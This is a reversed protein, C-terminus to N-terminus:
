MSVNRKVYWKLTAVSSVVVVLPWDCVSQESWGLVTQIMDAQVARIHLSVSVHDSVKLTEVCVVCLPKSRKWKISLTEHVLGVSPRIAHEQLKWKWTWHKSTSIQLSIRFTLYYGGKNKYKHQGATTYSASGGACCYGVIWWCCTLCRTPWKCTFKAIILSTDITSDSYLSVSSSPQYHFIYVRKLLWVCLYGRIYLLLCHTANYRHLLWDEQPVQHVRHQLLHGTCPRLREEPDAPLVSLYVHPGRDESHLHGGGAPTFLHVWIDPAWSCMHCWLGDTVHFEGSACHERKLPCKPFHLLRHM